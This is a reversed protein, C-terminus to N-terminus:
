VKFRVRAVQGPCPFPYAFIRLQFSERWLKLKCLYSLDLTYPGIVARIAYIATLQEVPQCLRLSKRDPQYFIMKSNQEDIPCFRVKSFNGCDSAPNLSHSYLPRPERYSDLRDISYKINLYGVTYYFCLANFRFTGSICFAAFRVSIGLIKSIGLLSTLASCIDTTM